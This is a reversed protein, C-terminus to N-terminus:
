INYLGDRKLKILKATDQTLYYSILFVTLQNILHIVHIYRRNAFFFTDHLM